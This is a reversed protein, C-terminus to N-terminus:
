LLKALRQNYDDSLVADIQSFHQHLVDADKILESYEDHIKDKDSHNKIAEVIISIEKEDFNLDNLLQKVMMSSRYAHDFSTGTIYTSYDHLLGIIASLEIDLHRQHALLTCISSVGFLHDYANKKKYGYCKSELNKYLCDKIIDLKNM